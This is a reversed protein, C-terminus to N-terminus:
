SSSQKSPEKPSPKGDDSTASKQASTESTKPETTRMSEASSALEPASEGKPIPEVEPEDEADAPLVHPRFDAFTVRDNEDVSDEGRRITQFPTVAVADDEKPGGSRTAPSVEPRRLTVPNKTVAEDPM